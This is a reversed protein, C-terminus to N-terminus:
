NRVEDSSSDDIVMTDVVRIKPPPPVRTSQIRIKNIIDSKTQKNQAVKSSHTKKLDSAIKKIDFLPTRKKVQFIKVPVNDKTVMKLQKRRKNM